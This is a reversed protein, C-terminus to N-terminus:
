RSGRAWAWSAIAVAGIGIALGILDFVWDLPEAVRGFIPQTLEDLMAFVALGAALALAKKGTLRSRARVAIAALCGLVAYAVFHLLKDSPPNSGLFQEPKPYHTAAVLIAAYAGTGASIVAQKARRGGDGM